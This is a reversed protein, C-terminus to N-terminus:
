GLVMGDVRRSNLFDAAALPRGGPLQITLLRLCGQACAVDIGQKGAAVVAGPTMAAGGDAIARADWVRLVEGRFRTQAVPWPNFARVQRELQVADKRWDILAESKNLYDLVILINKFRQM